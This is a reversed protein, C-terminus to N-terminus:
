ARPGFTMLRFTGLSGGYKHLDRESVEFRDGSDPDNIYYITQNDSRAREAPSQEAPTKYADIVMYHGNKFRKSYSSSKFGDPTEIGSAKLEGAGAIILPYGQDIQKKITALLRQRRAEASEGPVNVDVNSADLDYRKRAVNRLLGQDSGRGKGYKDRVYAGQQSEDGFASKETDRNTWTGLANKVIMALSAIGCLGSGYDRPRNKPATKPDRYVATGMQRQDVIPTRAMDRLARSAKARDAADPASERVGGLLVRAQERLKARDDGSKKEADALLKKALALREAPDKPATAAPATTKERDDSKAPVIAPPGEPWFPFPPRPPAIGPETDRERPPALDDPDGLAGPLVHPKPPPAVGPPSTSPGPNSPPVESTAAPEARHKVRAGTKDLLAEDIKGTLSFPDRPKEQAAAAGSLVALLALAGLSRVTM